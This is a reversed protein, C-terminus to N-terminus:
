VASVSSRPIRRARTRLRVSQLIGGAIRDNAHNLVPSIKHGVGLLRAGALWLRRSWRCTRRRLIRAFMLGHAIRGDIRFVIVIAFTLDVLGASDLRRVWRRVGDEVVVNFLQSKV